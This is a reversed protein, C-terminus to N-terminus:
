FPKWESSHGGAWRNNQKEEGWSWGSWPEGRWISTLDGFPLSRDPVDATVPVRHWWRSGGFSGPHKLHTFCEGFFSLFIVVWVVEQRAVNFHGKKLWLETLNPLFSPAKGTRKYNLTHIFWEHIQWHEQHTFVNFVTFINIGRVQNEM